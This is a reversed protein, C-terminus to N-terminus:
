SSRVTGAIIRILQLALVATRDDEDFDPSFDALNAGRVRFREGIREIAARVQAASLGGQTRCEVGPADAPDVADIDIHIYVNSTRSRLADLRTGFGHEPDDFEGAFVATVDTEDVVRREGDDLDRVGALLIHADTLAASGGMEQWADNHCRGSAIALAQGDAFGSPSTEPTNFDGHADFWILGLHSTDLTAIAGLSSSCNGGLIIPFGGGDVTEHVVRSVHSGIKTIADLDSSFDSGAQVRSVGVNFGDGRLTDALKNALLRGPGKGVSVNEEQLHYPVQILEIKM